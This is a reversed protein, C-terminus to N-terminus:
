FKEWLQQITKEALSGYHIKYDSLGGGGGVLVFINDGM